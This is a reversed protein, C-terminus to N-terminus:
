EFSAKWSKIGGILNITHHVNFQTSLLKQALISRSGSQCYLVIDTDGLAQLESIRFPLETVPINIGGINFEDHEHPERVDILAPTKGSAMLQHLDSVTIENM